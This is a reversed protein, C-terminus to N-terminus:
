NLNNENKNVLCNWYDQHAKITEINANKTVSSVLMQDVDINRFTVNRKNTLAYCCELMSESISDLNYGGELAFVLKSQIIKLRQVLYNFFVPTLNLGGLPDGIVCDFGASVLILEPNYEKLIPEILKILLYLYDSNGIKEYENTNLAINVNKGIGQNIGVNNCSGSKGPYFKGNDYKHVSIYLVKDNEYFIQQTGDGHHVDLDLIAIRSLNYKNLMVNATIGVNNFICFGGASNTHAHHGPPRIIAVGNNLSNNIVQETLDILSGAAISASTNTHKNLYVSNYKNELNVIEITNYKPINQITTVYDETHTLLLEESTISRAKIQECYKLLGANKITNYIVTIREPCEPHDEEKHLCMQEDYVLGTVKSTM